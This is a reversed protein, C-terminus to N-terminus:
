RTHSKINAPYSFRGARWIFICNGSRFGGIQRFNWHYRKCGGLTFVCIYTFRRLYFLSCKNITHSSQLHTPCELSEALCALAHVSHGGRYHSGSYRRRESLGDIEGEVRILQYSPLVGGLTSDPVGEEHNSGIM